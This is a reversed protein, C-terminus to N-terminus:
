GVSNQNFNYFQYSATFDKDAKIFVPRDICIDSNGNFTRTLVEGRYPIVMDYLGCEDLGPLLRFPLIFFIAFM